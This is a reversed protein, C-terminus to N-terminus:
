ADEGQPPQALRAEAEEIMTAGEKFALEDAFSPKTTFRDGTAPEEVTIWVRTRKKAVKVVELWQGRGQYQFPLWDGIVIREAAKYEYNGTMLDSMGQRGTTVRRPSRVRSRSGLGLVVRHGETGLEKFPARHVEWVVEHMADLLEGKAVASNGVSPSSSLAEYTAQQISNACREWRVYEADDGIAKAEAALKRRKQEQENLKERVEGLQKQAAAEPQTLFPQIAALTEAATELLSGRLGPDAEEWTRDAITWRRCADFLRKALEEVAEEVGTHEPASLAARYDALADAAIDRPSRGHVTQVRIRELADVLGKALRPDSIYQPDTM